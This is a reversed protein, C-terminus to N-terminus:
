PLLSGEDQAHVGAEPWRAQLGLLPVHQVAGLPPSCKVAHGQAHVSVCPSVCQLM